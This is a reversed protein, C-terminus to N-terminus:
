LAPEDAPILFPGIELMAIETVDVTSGTQIEDVNLALDQPLLSATKDQTSENAWEYILKASYKAKREVSSALQGATDCVFPKRACFSKVDAVADFAAALYTGTSAPVTDGDVAPDVPPSPLAFLIVGLVLSTRLMGMIDGKITNNNGTSYWICIATGHLPV